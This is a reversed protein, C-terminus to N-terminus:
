REKSEHSDRKHDKLGQDTAFRRGCECAFPKAKTQRNLQREAKREFRELMRDFEYEAYEGM